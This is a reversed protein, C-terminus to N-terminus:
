KITLIGYEILHNIKNNIQRNHKKAKAVDVGLGQLM